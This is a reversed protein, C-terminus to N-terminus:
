STAPRLAEGVMAGLRATPPPHRRYSRSEDHSLVAEGAVVVRLGLGRVRCCFDVDNGAAPFAPDLGGLQHWLARRTLLCAGTVADAERTPWLGAETAFRHPHRCVGDTGLAIGVHQVGGEPYMLRAGVVGTGPEALEDAMRGLWGPHQPTVDDNLLCLLAGSATAAAYNCAAAFNFRRAPLWLARVRAPDLGAILRRQAADPPDPQALVLVMDLGPYDTGDLVSRLSRAVARGRATSPVILSVPPRPGRPAPPLPPAEPGPAAEAQAAHALASRLRRPLAGPARLVGRALVGALLPAAASALRLAAEPRSIPVFGPPAPGQPVFVVRGAGPGLHWAGALHSVRPLLFLPM